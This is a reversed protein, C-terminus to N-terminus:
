KPDTHQDRKIMKIILHISIEEHFWYTIEIWRNSVHDVDFYETSSIMLLNMKWTMKKQLFFFTLLNDKM